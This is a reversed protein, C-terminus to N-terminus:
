FAAKFLHEQQPTAGAHFWSGHRKFAHSSLLLHHNRSKCYKMIGIIFRKKITVTLIILLSHPRYDPTLNEIRQEGWVPGEGFGADWRILM